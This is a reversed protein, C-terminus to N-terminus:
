WQVDKVDRKEKKGPKKLSAMPAAKGTAPFSNIKSMFGPIVDELVMLQWVEDNEPNIGEKYCIWLWFLVKSVTKYDKETSSDQTILLSGAIKIALKQCIAGLDKGNVVKKQFVSAVVTEAFDRAGDQIISRLMDAVRKSDDHPSVYGEKNYSM